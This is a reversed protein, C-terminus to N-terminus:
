DDTESSDQFDAWPKMFDAASTTNIPGASQQDVKQLMYRNNRLIKTVEYPGLYKPQVKAGTSFQTRKIAVWDKERYQHAEKRKRDFGRRNEEQVKEICQKAAARMENRDGEFCEIIEKELAVVLLRDEHAYRAKVGFLLEFPSRGTSRSTTANIFQQLRAVHRYWHLPNELSMKTLIPILMGNVREVQGNGRPVGTTTLVHQIEERDCYEKFDGSTFASGRDSVIRVPNGFVMRQDEIRKVAEAATTNKVPYIWVFKSFADIIVFLYQYSKATSPMPGLHDIHYTHLPVDSKDIPNYFGEQKGAKRASLICAVCNAIVKAVKMDLKDIAYDQRLVDMVKQAGFHGREHVSRILQTQLARPVVLLFNGNNFKYLTGRRIVYDKYESKVDLIDMILKCEADDQQSTKVNGMVSDELVMVSPYRSLADVHRMSVGARHKVECEYEGLLLAWRAIKACLDRKKMTQNFAQCDTYIVFKIGLLYVRLKKLARVVALVEQEYSTYRSEADTTKSSLYFVPHFLGDAHKQLLCAGYGAASADTHLETELNPNFVKLVPDKCLERKLTEFSARQLNGFVFPVEKRTLDTLPKAILSFNLVFKRFFGALGMFSQVQAVTKPEPYYKIAHTKEESPRISGEELIHGLFSVKKSVFVCKDFRIILGNEKAVDLVRSVKNLNDEENIGPVILDDLYVMVIGERILPWFVTNVFRQFVAPSNCLGFPVKLFEYQGNPVVFATYKVSANDVDVHFFGNRLDLTSFVKADFFKELVDEMVPLPYRDRVVKANLQRYDICLRMSGDKKPRVVIPSAYESNSPQIIGDKLWEDIQEVVFKSERPALRRPPQSVPIEDALVLKLKVCSEHLKRPCYDKEFQEIKRRIEQNNTDSVVECKKQDKILEAVDISEFEAIPEKGIKEIKVKGSRVCMTAERLLDKGILMDNIMLADPMLQCCVEFCQDDISVVARFSGSSMTVRNGLTRLSIPPGDIRPPNNLLAYISEKLMTVDSGTDVLATINKCDLQLQIHMDPLENSAVQVTVIQSVSENVDSPTEPEREAQQTSSRTQCKPAIHGFEGCKFCKPGKQKDPCAPTEHSLAGCFGCRRKFNRSSSVSNTTKSSGVSNKNTGADKQALKITEYVPFTAKLADFTNAVYLVTKNVPDDPIGDVIYAILSKEDVNGLKSLKRMAFAYASFSESKDKKRNRLREHVERDSIQEGFENNLLNRLLPWTNVGTSSEMALKAAGRLLRRAYFYRKVNNWGCIEAIGDFENLWEAVSQGDGAFVELSEEVDRFLLESQQEARNPVILGSTRNGGPADLGSAQGGGCGSTNGVVSGSRNGVGSGSAGVNVDKDENTMDDEQTDSNTQDSCDLEAKMLRDVLETKQRYHTSLGRERLEQQLQKVTLASLAVEMRTIFVSKLSNSYLSKM